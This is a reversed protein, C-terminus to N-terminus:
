SLDQQARHLTEKEKQSLADFGKASIKDLIRDVEQTNQNASPRNVTYRAPHKKLRAFWKPLEIGVSKNNSLTSFNLRHGYHHFLFGFGLGGLHASHAISSRTTGLEYFLLGFLSIAIAIRLLYKPKLTVPLVFFLLLTIPEEPHRLCFFAMLAFVSASAGVVVMSSNFHLLVYLLGGALAGGLYLILFSQRGLQPEIIRGLFYLGAMNGIIHWLTQISHLFSYSLLTWVKLEQFHTGSLAFWEQFFRYNLGPFFVNVVHQLIFVAVTGFLLYSTASRASSEPPRPERMYPRDYIM